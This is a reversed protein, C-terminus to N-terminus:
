KKQHRLQKIVESVKDKWQDLDQRTSIVMLVDPPVNVYERQFIVKGGGKIVDDAYSIHADVIGWQEMTMADGLDTVSITFNIM